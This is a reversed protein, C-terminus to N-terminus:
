LRVWKPSSEFSPCTNRYFLSCPNAPNEAAHPEGPPSLSSPTNALHRCDPSATAAVIAIAFPNVAACRRPPPRSRVRASGRALDAREAFGIM